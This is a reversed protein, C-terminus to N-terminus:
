DEEEESYKVFVRDALDLEDLLRQVNDLNYQPRMRTYLWHSDDLPVQGDTRNDRVLSGSFALVDARRTEWLRQYVRILLEKINRVEWIEGDFRVYEFETRFGPYFGGRRLADLIPVLRERGTPGDISPRPCIELFRETLQTTRQVIAEVNWAAVESLKRTAAIASQAYYRRKDHFSRNSAGANLPGELLTWNGLTNLLERHRAQEEESFDSWRREGDGTWSPGPYQPFIHELELGAVDATDLIRTLTYGAHPTSRYRLASRVREDSPTRRVLELMLDQGRSWRRCLQAALHDRSEGVAMKRLFLSQLQGLIKILEDKGSDSPERRYDRYVGLVLPFMAAGFTNVYSIQQALDADPEEHPDLLIRYVESYAKWEEAERALRDLPLRPYQLRFASYVGHTRGLDDDRGSKLIIFDRLFSEISRGTNAEIPAWYTDEIQTQEALSLGMLTYNHILEHSQLPEGTSNLSEFIQQANAHPGLRIDVHELKQLGKWVRGNGEEIAQLFFEYNEDFYSVDREAPTLPRGSVIGNLVSERRKHPQLRTRNRDTPHRLIGDLRAALQPDAERVTDRLAAILLFLTSVRQQGDILALETLGNAKSESSLISGIFHTDGDGADAVALIDDLLRQCDKTDWRYQRQYVPVAITTDASKLWEITNAPSASFTSM